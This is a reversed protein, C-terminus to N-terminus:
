AKIGVGQRIAMELKPLVERTFDEANAISAGDIKVELHVTVGMNEARELADQVGRTVKAAIDSGGSQLAAIIDNFSKITEGGRFNVMEPGAEGVMHWGALASRTGAEYGAPPMNANAQQVNEITGYRSKIYNIAAAVNDVPAYINDHGPVKHANFTTPIVQALGRSSNGAAANSDWNNVAGPNWGSERTILTNMGALWADRTSPPPTHTLGMAEEIIRRRDGEPIMGGIAGGAASASALLSDLKAVAGTGVKLTGGGHVDGALTWVGAPNQQRRMKEEAINANSGSTIPGFGTEGFAFSRLGTTLSTEAMKAKIADVARKHAAVQEPSPGGYGGGGGGSVFEGGIEPLFYKIPFQGHDAGAAPGGYRTSNHGGGSEVNVGDLTGAMHSNPGGGGRMIGVAFRSSLGSRFGLADFNSETSFSRGWPNRGTLVNFIASMYGSCDFGDPGTGGYVYARGDGKERAMAKAADLRDVAGGAAFANDQSRTGRRALISERMAYVANHGGAANVEAATWVHEGNSLYAPISDSTATGAGFVPGGAARRIPAGGEVGGGGALGFIGKVDNFRDRIFNIPGEFKGKVEDWITGIKDKLETVLRLFDDKIEGFRTTLWSWVVEARSQVGGWLEGWWTSVNTKWTTLTSGISQWFSDWRTQMAQWIESAKTRVADWMTSWAISLSTSWTDFQSRIGGVFGGFKIGIDTFIEGAKTRTADWMTGWAGSFGQAWGDLRGRMDGFWGGIKISVDTFVESAKTRIGDWIVGWNTAFVSFTTGVLQSARQGAEVFQSFWSVVRSVKDAMDAFQGIVNILAPLLLILLQTLPPLLEVALKTLQPLLPTIKIVFDGWAKVLPPLHPALQRIADVVAMGLLRATETLYPSVQRLVDALPRLAPVLANLFETAVQTVIPLVAALQDAVIGVLDTLVPLLPEMATFVKTFSDGAVKLLPEMKVLGEAMFRSMLDIMKSFPPGLNDVAVVLFRGISEIIRDLAPTMTRWVPMTAELIKNFERMFTAGLPMVVNTWDGFLVILKGLQDMMTPIFVQTFYPNKAFGDFFTTMQNSFPVWTKSFAELAGQGAVMASKLTDGFARAAPELQVSINRFMTDLMPTIENLAPKIADFASTAANALVTWAPTLDDTIKNAFAEVNDKLGGFMVGMKERVSDFLLPWAALAVPVVALGAAAVGGAAAAALGAAEAAIAVVGFAVTITGIAGTVVAASASLATMAAGGTAAMGGIQTGSSAASSGVGAFAGGLKGVVGVTETVSSAIDQLTRNLGDRNVNIHVDRDRAVRDLIAEAPGAGRVDANITATGQYGRLRELKARAKADDVDVDVRIRTNSLRRLDENLLKLDARAARVGDGDWDSTLNFGLSTITAM